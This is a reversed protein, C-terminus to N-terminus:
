KNIESVYEKLYNDHYEIKNGFNFSNGSSLHIWVDHNNEGTKIYLEPYWFWGDTVKWYISNKLNNSFLFALNAMNVLNHKIQFEYDNLGHDGMNQLVSHGNGQELNLVRSLTKLLFSVTAAGAYAVKSVFLEPTALLAVMAIDIGYGAGILVNTVINHWLKNEHHSTNFHNNIINEVKDKSNWSDGFVNKLLDAAIDKSDNFLEIFVKSLKKLKDNFYFLMGIGAAGASLKIIENKIATVKVIDAINTPLAMKSVNFIAKKGINMLKGYLYPSSILKGALPTISTALDYVLSTYFSQQDMKYKVDQGWYVFNAFSKKLESNSSSIGLIQAAKNTAKAYGNKYQIALGALKSELIKQNSWNIITKDFYAVSSYHKVVSNDGKRPILFKDKLILRKNYHLYKEKNQEYLEGLWAFKDTPGGSSFIDTNEVRFDNTKTLMNVKRFSTSDNTEKNSFYIKLVRSQARELLLLKNNYDIPLEALKRINNKLNSYYSDFSKIWNVVNTNEKLKILEARAQKKNFKQGLIKLLRVRDGLLREFEESELSYPDIKIKYSVNAFTAISAVLLPALIITKKNIKM